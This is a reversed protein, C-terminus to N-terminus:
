YQEPDLPELAASKESETEPFGSEELTLPELAESQESGQLMLDLSTLGRATMVQEETYLVRGTPHVNIFEKCSRCHYFQPEVAGASKGCEDCIIPRQRQYPPQINIASSNTYLARSPNLQEARARHISDQTISLEIPM